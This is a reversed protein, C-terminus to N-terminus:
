CNWQQCLKILDNKLQELQYYESEFKFTLKNGNGAPYIAFGIWEVTGLHNITGKLYFSEEMTKFEVESNKENIAREISKLFQPFDDTLFESRFDVTFGILKININVRLWKSDWDNESSPNSKGYVKISISSNDGKLEM